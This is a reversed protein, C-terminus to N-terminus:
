FHVLFIWVANRPLHKRVSNQNTGRQAQRHDRYSHKTVRSDNSRTEEQHNKNSDAAHQIHRSLDQGIIRPPIIDATGKRPNKTENINQRKQRQNNKDNPTNTHDEAASSRPRAGARSARRGRRPRPCSGSRSRRRPPASRPSDHHSVAAPARSGPTAWGPACELGARRSRARAPASPADAGNSKGPRPCVPRRGTPKPDGFGAVRPEFPQPPSSPRWGRGSAASAPPRRAAPREPASELAPRGGSVATIHEFPRPSRPSVPALDNELSAPETARIPGVVATAPSRPPLPSPPPWRSNLPWVSGALARRRRIGEHVRGVAGSTPVAAM